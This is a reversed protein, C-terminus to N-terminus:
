FPADPLIAPIVSSKVVANLFNQISPIRKVGGGDDMPTYSPTGANNTRPLQLTLSEGVSCFGMGLSPEMWSIPCRRFWAVPIWLEQFENLRSCIGKVRWSAMATTAGALNILLLLGVVVLLRVASNM